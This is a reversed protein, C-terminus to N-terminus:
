KKKAENKAKKANARARAEAAREQAEKAEKAAREAALEALREEEEEALYPNNKLRRKYVFRSLFISLEYLLLMPIAVLIQSVVDPPTIVAAVVFIAVIVLRRGAVLLDPKVLGLSTLLVVLIPMEFVIGLTLMTSICLTIYKEISSSMLVGAELNAYEAYFRLLFPIMINYAFLVGLVFFGLGGILFFLLTKRESSKLGPSAFAFIQYLILPSDVCLGVIMALKIHQTFEEGPSVTFLNYRGASLAKLAEFIEVSYAFAALMAIVFVILVIVLRNRFERLHDSLGMVLEGNDNAQKKTTLKAM